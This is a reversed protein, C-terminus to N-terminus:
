AHGTRFTRMPLAFPGSATWHVRMKMRWMRVLQTKNKAFQKQMLKLKEATQILVFTTVHVQVGSGSGDEPARSKMRDVLTRESVKRM